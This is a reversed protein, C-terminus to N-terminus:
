HLVHTSFRYGVGYVTQICGECQYARLLRRLGCVQADVVRMDQPLGEDWVHNLIMTRTLVKEPQAMLYSLLRFELPTLDVTRDGYTVRQSVVNIALGCARMLGSPENRYVRRLIARVRAMLEPTSLPKAVCDDAGAEFGRIMDEEAAPECLVIVPISSSRGDGKMARVFEIALAREFAPDIIVIDPRRRRLLLQAEEVGPAQLVDFGHRSFARTLLERESPDGDVILARKAHVRPCWEDIARASTKSTQGDGESATAIADTGSESSAIKEDSMRMGM